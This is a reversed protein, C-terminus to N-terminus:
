KKERCNSDVVILTGQPLDSHQVAQFVSQNRVVEQLLNSVFENRKPDFLFHFFFDAYSIEELKIKGREVLVDVRARDEGSMLFSRGESLFYVHDDFTQLRSLLFTENRIRVFKNM